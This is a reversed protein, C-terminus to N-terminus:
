CGGRSRTEIEKKYISILEENFDRFGELQEIRGELYKVRYVSNDEFDDIEDNSLIRVILSAATNDSLPIAAEIWEKMKEDVAAEAASKFIFKLWTRAAEDVGTALSLYKAVVDNESDGDAKRRSYENQFYYPNGNDPNLRNLTEFIPEFDEFPKLGNKYYSMHKWLKLITEFCKEEASKKEEGNSYETKKMQEAIYHSMWRSLTDVSSELGLENVLLKGLNLVEEKM